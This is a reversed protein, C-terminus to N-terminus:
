SETGVKAMRALPVQQSCLFLWQIPLSIKKESMISHQMIHEMRPGWFKLWIKKFVSILGSTMLRHYDSHGAESPSFPIPYELDAPNFYIVDNIREEPVFNLIDEALDGHPDILAIGHRDRIDSVVMNKILTSKGAGTKGVIYMHGRRNKEKIGFLIRIDRYNTIALPTLLNDTHKSM